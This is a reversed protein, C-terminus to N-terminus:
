PNPSLSPILNPNSISNVQIPNPSPSPTLNPNSISNVRIGLPRGEAALTATLGEVAFKSAVYPGM